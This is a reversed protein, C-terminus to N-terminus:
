TVLVKATLNNCINVWKNWTVSEEFLLEKHKKKLQRLVASPLNWEWQPFTLIAGTGSPVRKQKSVYPVLIHQIGASKLQRYWKGSPSVADPRM